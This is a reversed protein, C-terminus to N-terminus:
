GPQAKAAAAKAREDAAVTEAAAAAVQHTQEETLHEGGSGSVSVKVERRAFQIDNAAFEEQVRKFIQKRIGFQAGPKHMFKGRVVIGYENFEGVGQSKFPEIFGPALAPDDMMEQGIKKFIKRVKEIDTDFPVTFKLKMIGWDRGFNTVTKINSYPIILVPGKSDRLQISRISIKEVTGQTGGTDIYENLRFADDILFFLGSMIDSVLKQAGFGIALGAVGAGALLPTVDIGLNGLATLVTLTIIVAQLAWSVMPLITGMRSAPGADAHPTESESADPGDTVATMENALKRNILLRVVEWVLYGVVCIMLAQILHVAFQEGMSASAMSMLTIGWLKATILLVAGFVLVRAMRTYANVNSAYAKQAIHGEGKMPPVFHLVLARIVTDLLPAILLVALSIIHRGDQLLESHGMAGITQALLWTIGIAGLCFWPYVRIAWEEFPSQELFRGRM